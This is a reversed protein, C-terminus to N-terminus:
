TGNRLSALTKAAFTIETFTATCGGGTPSQALFGAELEDDEVLRFHRVLQWRSGDTSFHFAGALGIRAVRLWAANGEVVASNCDDSVGHTVVSVVMPEGDPSYELCLKAWTRDDHRLVLAGADFTAAFDVEVRAGLIFDGRVREVVAPANLTSTDGGPDVFWDTRPGAVLRLPDPRM